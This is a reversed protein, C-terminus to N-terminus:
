QCWEDDSSSISSTLRKPRRFCDWKASSSWNASWYNTWEGGLCPRGKSRFRTIKPLIVTPLVDGSESNCPAKSFPQWWQSSRWYKLFELPFCFPLCDLLWNWKERKARHVTSKLPLNPSALCHSIGIKSSFNSTIAKSTSSSHTLWGELKM